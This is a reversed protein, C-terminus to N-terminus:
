IGTEPPRQSGTPHTRHSRAAGLSPFPPRWPPRCSRRLQRRRGAPCRAGGAASSSLAGLCRRHPLVWRRRLRPRGLETAPLLPQTRPLPREAAAPAAPQRHRSRCRPTRPRPPCHRHPPHPREIRKWTGAPSRPGDSPPWARHRCPRRPRTARTSHSSRHGWPRRRRPRQPPTCARAPARPTPAARIRPPAPESQQRAAACAQPPPPAPHHRRTGHPGSSERHSCTRVPRRARQAARRRMAEVVSRLHRTRTQAGGALQLVWFSQTMLKKRLLSTTM